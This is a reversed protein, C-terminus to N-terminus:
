STRRAARTGAVCRPHFPTERVPSPPHSDRTRGRPDLAGTHTAEFEDAFCGLLNGILRAGGMRLDRLACHGPHPIPEDVVLRPEANTDGGGQELQPQAVASRSGNRLCAADMIYHEGVGTVVMPVLTPSVTLNM